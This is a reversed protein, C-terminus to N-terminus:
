RMGNGYHPGWLINKKTFLVTKEKGKLYTQLAIRERSISASGASNV